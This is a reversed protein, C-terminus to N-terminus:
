RWPAKWEGARHHSRILWRMMEDLLRRRVSESGPEDWLNRTEGPDAELDFLQGQDDDVFHVLKFRRDRIMTMFQTGQLTGDRSHESFVFPRGRDPGGELTSLVSDAEVTDPVPVGALELITPGLDMQQYLGDLKRGAQVRGPARVVTPVRTITDYMTWKQSHGHDGLCDGHDSTFIVVSNDLYGQEDLTQLIEGIKQDIMTVNALYYERQRRRQKATPKALHVVSDHDVECNHEIMQKLAHPQGALDEETPDQIPIDRDQYLDAFRETPDYPPHPGPFGIEMFLPETQPYSRLWWCAMDGVFM